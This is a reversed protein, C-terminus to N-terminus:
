HAVFWLKNAMIDDIMVEFDYAYNLCPERSTASSDYIGGCWLPIIETVERTGFSPATSYADQVIRRIMSM